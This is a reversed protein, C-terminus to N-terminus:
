GVPPHAPAGQRQPELSSQSGKFDYRQGIEKRAQHVPTTWRQLNVESVIDFSHSEAMTLSVELPHICALFDQVAGLPPARTHVVYQQRIEKQLVSDRTSIQVTLPYMVRGGRDTLRRTIQIGRRALEPDHAEGDVCQEALRRRAHHDRGAGAHGRYHGTPFATTRAMSTM